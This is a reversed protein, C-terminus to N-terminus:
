RGATDARSIASDFNGKAAETPDGQDHAPGRSLTGPGGHDFRGSVGAQAALEPDTEPTPADPPTQLTYNENPTPDPSVGSGGREQEAALNEKVESQGVDLGPSPDKVADKPTAEALPAAAPADDSSSHGERLEKIEAEAKDLLERLKSEEQQQGADVSQRREVGDPGSGATQRRDPGSYGQGEKQQESM